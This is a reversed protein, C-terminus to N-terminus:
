AACLRSEFTAPSVYGLTSHLRQRNYWDIYERLAALGETHTQWDHDGLLETKLTAFFSEAVANDWCNGRRSMSVTIGQYALIRRYASGTYHMGRDSHHLLGAAPQRHTLAQQLAPITLEQGPSRGAAWGVVRRSGADLVVALYLWGQRTFCATVDAVWVQNLAAVDFGRALVNPAPALQPDAQTTGRYRRARKARLGDDHMLWAIRNRGCGFEAHLERHIRVSGYRGKNEEYKARISVLLQQNAQHRASPPRGDWAHFGSRSVGLLRCMLGLPYEDRHNAIAAYKV